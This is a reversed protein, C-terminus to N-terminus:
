YPVYSYSQVIGMEDFEISLMTGKASGGVLSVRAYLYTWLPHGDKLGKSAPPGLRELIQEKTTTGVEIRKVYTTDFPKGMRLACGTLVLTILLLGTLLSSANLSSGKRNM